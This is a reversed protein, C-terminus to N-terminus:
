QRGTRLALDSAESPSRGDQRVHPLLVRRRGSMMCAKGHGGAMVASMQM